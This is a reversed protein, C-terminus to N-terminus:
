NLKIHNPHFLCKISKFIFLFIFWSEFIWDAIFYDLIFIWCFHILFFLVYKHFSGIFGFLIEISKLADFFQQIISIFGFQFLYVLYLELLVSNLPTRDSQVFLISHKSFLIPFLINLSCVHCLYLRSLSNQPFNSQSRKNILYWIKLILFKHFLYTLHAHIKDLIM